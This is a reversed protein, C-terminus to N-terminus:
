RALVRREWKNKGDHVRVIYSGPVINSLPVSVIRDAGYIPKVNQRRGALNYLAIRPHRTSQSPITIKLMRANQRITLGTTSKGNRKPVIATGGGQAFPGISIFSPEVWEFYSNEWLSNVVELVSNLEADLKVVMIRQEEPSLGSIDKYIPESSIVQVGRKKLEGLATEANINPKRCVFIDGIPIQFVDYGYELVNAVRRVGSYKKVEEINTKSTDIVIVSSVTVVNLDFVVSDAFKGIIDNKSNGDYEIYLLDARLNFTIIKDLIRYYVEEANLSFALTIVFVILSSIKIHGM